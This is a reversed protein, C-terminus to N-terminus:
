LAYLSCQFLVHRPLWLAAMTVMNVKHTVAWEWLTWWNLQCLRGDDRVQILITGIPCRIDNLFTLRTYLNHRLTLSPFHSWTLSPFHSWTLTSNSQPFPEIDNCPSYQTIPIIHNVKLSSYLYVSLRHTGTESQKVRISGSEKSLWNDLGVKYVLGM